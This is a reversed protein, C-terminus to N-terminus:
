LVSAYAICSGNYKNNCMGSGFMENWMDEPIEFKSIGQYNIIDVNGEEERVYGVFEDYGFHKSFATIMDENPTVVPRDAGGAAVLSQSAIWKEHLDGYTILVKMKSVGEAESCDDTSTGDENYCFIQSKYSDSHSFGEPINASIDAVDVEGASFGIRNNKECAEATGDAGVAACYYPWKLKKAYRLASRHNIVMKVMHASAVPVNVKEPTDSRMPLSYGALIALFTSLVLWMYM